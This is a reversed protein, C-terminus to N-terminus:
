KKRFLYNEAMHTYKPGKMTKRVNALDVARGKSLQFFNELYASSIQNKEDIVGILEFTEDFRALTADAHSDNCLLIGGPKLYRKTAQGVFGAFQSIILDVPDVGLEAEYDSGIFSIECAEPYEKQQELFSQIVDMQRFFQITGKYSDIYTVKPIVLSPAIDVHSGPYLASEIGFARAVVRYLAVRSGIKAQYEHYEKLIKDASELRRGGIM